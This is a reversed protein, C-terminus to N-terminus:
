HCIERVQIEKRNVKDIYTKEANFIKCMLKKLVNLTNIIQKVVKKYTLGLCNHIAVGSKQIKRYDERLKSFICNCSM